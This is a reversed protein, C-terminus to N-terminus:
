ERAKKGSPKDCGTINCAFVYTRDGSELFGVYWGLNEQDKEDTGTGTKGYLIGKDTTQWQMIDKLIDASGKSFPMQGDLLKNFLQVQEKANILLSPKGPVPLWFTDIGSSIDKNGYGMQEIFKKMREAGIQRALGQFAPVASVRFAERLTLDQNWGEIKRKIGDWQYWPEDPGKLIGLELGILTNYIKFTSCPPLLRQSLAPDSETWEGSSRNFIVLATQYNQFLSKDMQQADCVHFSCFVLLVVFLFNKM